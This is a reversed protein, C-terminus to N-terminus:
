HRRGDRVNTRCMHFVRLHVVLGVVVHAVKHLATDVVKTHTHISAEGDVHRSEAWTLYLSQASADLSLRDNCPGKALAAGRYM